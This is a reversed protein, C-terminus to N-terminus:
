DDGPTRTTNASSESQSELADIFGDRNRDLRDFQERNGLFERPSIDDDRNLDMNTFWDPAGETSIVEAPLEFLEMLRESPGRVFGLTLNVPLEDLDFQGDNNTDLQSIRKASDRIERATLRGDLNQDIASMLPTRIQSARSRIQGRIVSQQDEYYAELEDSFVKADGNRDLAEFGLNPFQGALNEFETEDVYQNKDVDAQALIAESQSAADTVEDNIYITLLSNKISITTRSESSALVSLSESHCEVHIAGKAKEEGSDTNSDGADDIEEGFRIRVTADAALEALQMVEEKSWQDDQNTDLNAFFEQDPYSDSSMVGAFSFHQELTYILQSWQTQEDIVIASHPARYRGVRVPRDDDGSLETSVIMEDADSDLLRLRHPTAAIETESLISDHDTDLWKMLPSQSRRDIGSQDNLLRFSKGANSNRTLYRPVESEEVVKNKNIDYMREVQSQESEGPTPLNGFQGYMMKPHTVLEKWTPRGDEDADALAVVRQVLDNLIAEPPRQDITMVVDLLIIGSPAIYLIRKASGIGGSATSKSDPEAPISDPNAPADTQRAVEPNSSSDAEAVTVETDADASTALARKEENPVSESTTSSSPKTLADNTEALPLASSDPAANKNSTTKKAVRSDDKGCGVSSVTLTLLLIALRSIRTM